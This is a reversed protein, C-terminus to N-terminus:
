TKRIQKLIKDGGRKLLKEALDTGLDEADNSYGTLEDKLYIEGDTSAIFGTIFIEEGNLVTRCGAPIQCGGELKRMFAREASIELWTPHHNIIDVMKNTDEDSTRTEMAIAGQSVAPIYQEPQLIETIYHELGMRKLGAAAMVMADCHGSEMKKIRTNINGRIDIITLNKNHYLLSAKRRLSSTAIKNGPTMELLPKKNNSVFADRIDERELVGGVKLGDTLKTPIDKMSHVAIDIEHRELALELEKTFLGKDGIKSLAIDLIKDGKTKIIVIEFTYGSAVSELANKVMGAQYLALQSGRTGIKIHKM